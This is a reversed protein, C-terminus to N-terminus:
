APYARLGIRYLDASEAAPLRVLCVRVADGLSGGAGGGAGVRRRLSGPPDPQPGAPVSRRGGPLLDPCGGVDAPDGPSRYLYLVAGPYGAGWPNGLRGAGGAPQSVATGPLVGPGHLVPVAPCVLAEHAGM